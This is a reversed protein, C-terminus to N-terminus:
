RGYVALTQGCGPPSLTDLYMARLPLINAPTLHQGWVFTDFETGGLLCHATTHYLRDLAQGSVLTHFVSPGAIAYVRRYGLQALKGRLPAADVRLEDGCMIIEVRHDNSLRRLKLPDAKRGTVVFLRRDRYYDLSAAPIDLSASFIAIDPQASLGKELRWARLDDFDTSMGVPLEAQTEADAAQRFYRASTILLDAQAALEQFLRWDRANAIDPPVQHTHRHEAPLAIRGDLSAIFNSYIFPSDHGHPLENLEGLYLNKLKRQQGSEPYLELVTDQM